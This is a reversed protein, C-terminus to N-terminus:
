FGTLMMRSTVAGVKMSFKGSRKGVPKRIKKLITLILINPIMNKGYDVPVGFAPIGSEVSIGAGTSVLIPGNQVIQEAAKRFNESLIM